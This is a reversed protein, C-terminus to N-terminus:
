AHAGVLDLRPTLGLTFGCTAFASVTEFMAETLTAQQTLLLLWTITALVFLSVVLVPPRRRSAKPRSPAGGWPSRRTAGCTIGCRWCSSPLPAPPSVGAWRRRRVRWHVDPGDPCHHQQAGNYDLPQLVFGSTRSTASHFYAMLLRQPWALDAFLVGPRSQGVLLTLAGFALLGPQYRAHRALAALTNEAPALLRPGRAGTRRHQRPHRTSSLLVAYITDTPFGSTVGPRGDFLDFSANCFASISHFVALFAARSAGYTGQWNLWLFPCRRGRHSLGRARGAADVPRHRPGIGIGLADRLAYREELTVRRGLLRYVVVAGAMFGIGGAQMLLMLVIQGTVSLDTGPTIVTLGTTALASVATFFAEDLRLGRTGGSLPLWLLITGLAVLGTLGTALRLARRANISRFSRRARSSLGATPPGNSRGPGHSSM